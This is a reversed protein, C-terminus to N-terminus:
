IELINTSFDNKKLAINTFFLYPLLNDGTPFLINGFQFLIFPYIDKENFYIRKFGTQISGSIIESQNKIIGPGKKNRLYQTILNGSNIGEVSTSFFFKEGIRTGYICPGNIKHLETSSWIGNEKSLLRITNQEFQSDTAYLFGEKIPFGVCSRFKQDGKLICKVSQFDNTAQYIAASSETDGTLIWVCELYSDPIINHIHDITGDAFEYVEKLDDNKYQYIKVKTKNPNHFYEGFYIGNSFGKISEIKVINLPRSGRTLLIESEMRYSATNFRYITKDKIILLNEEDIKCAYRIDRRLLRRLVPSFKSLLTTFDPKFAYILKLQQKDTDYLYIRNLKSLYISKKDKGTLVQYKRLLKM